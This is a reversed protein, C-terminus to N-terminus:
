ESGLIRLENKLASIGFAEIPKSTDNLSSEDLNMGSVHKRIKSKKGSIAKFRELPVACPLMTDPDVILIPDAEYPTVAVCELSFDGIIM